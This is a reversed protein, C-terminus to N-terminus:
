TDEEKLQPRDRLLWVTRVASRVTKRVELAAHCVHLFLETFEGDRGTRCHPHTRKFRTRSRHQHFMPKMVHDGAEIKLQFSSRQTLNAGALSQLIRSSWISLVDRVSGFGWRPYQYKCGGPFFCFGEKEDACFTGLFFVLLVFVEEAISNLEFKM